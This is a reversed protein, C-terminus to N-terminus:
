LQKLRAPLQSVGITMPTMSCIGPKASKLTYMGTSGANYSTVEVTYTGTAALTYYGSGRPIRTSENQVKLGNPNYLVINTNFESPNVLISVQDGGSGTFTYLDSNWGIGYKLSVCDTTEIKGTVPQGGISMPTTSCMGPKASKLTYMGTSGANYSTVEVTYTGTTALTYYGSGRPIRTSENQVRLRKPDYLVINTNFESPSVLILVQDGVLGTFTYLDSNWGIGYKLSVCDTTEIKGTIPEGGITMPTTQCMTVANNPVEIAASFGVWILVFVSTLIVIMNGSM